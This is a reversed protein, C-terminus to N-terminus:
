KKTKEILKVFDEFIFFVDEPGPGAEPHFQVSFIPLRKHKLGEDTKDYLNFYTQEVDPSDLDVTYNHNQSTIFIRNRSLDKVPHNGGHHGFKLKRTIGGLAIGLLQHGLCIGMVAVKLTKDQLRGILDKM